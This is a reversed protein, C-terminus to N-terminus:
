QGPAGQNPAVGSWANTARGLTAIGLAISMAQQDSIDPAGTMQKVSNVLRSVMQQVEPVPQGTAADINPLVGNAMVGASSTPVPGGGVNGGESGEGQLTSFSANVCQLSCASISCWSPVCRERERERECVCVCVCV